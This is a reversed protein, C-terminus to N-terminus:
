KNCKGDGHRRNIVISMASTGCFECKTLLAGKVYGKPVQNPKFRRTEKGNNCCIRGSMSKSLSNCHDDSLGKVFGEPIKDGARFRGSETGNTYFELGVQKKNIRARHDETFVKKKGSESMRAKTEASHKTGYSAHDKGIGAALGGGIRLNYTDHREVFKHNVIKSEVDLAEARTSLMSLIKRSFNSRKFIPIDKLLDRGSGLYEDDINTSSHCGVYIMGNINNKTEYVFHYLTNDKNERIEKTIRM